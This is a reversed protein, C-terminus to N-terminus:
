RRTYRDRSDLDNLLSRLLARAAATTDDRITALIRAKAAFGVSSTTHLKAAEEMLRRTSQHVLMSDAALDGADQRRIATNLQRGQGQLAKEIGLLRADAARNKFAM